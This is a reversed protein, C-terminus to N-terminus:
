KGSERKRFIDYATLGLALMSLAFNIILPRLTEYDEGSVNTLIPKIVADIEDMEAGILDKLEGKILPFGEVADQLDTLAGVFSLIDSIQFGDLWPNTARAALILVDKLEEIGLVEKVDPGSKYTRDSM